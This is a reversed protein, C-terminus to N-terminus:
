ITSINEMDRYCKDKVDRYFKVANWFTDIDGTWKRSCCTRKSEQYDSIIEWFTDIDIELEHEIESIKVKIKADGFTTYMDDRKM